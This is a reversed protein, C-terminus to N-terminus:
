SGPYERNTIHTFERILRKDQPTENCVLWDELVAQKEDDWQFLGKRLWDNIVKLPKFVKIDFQQILFDPLEHEVTSVMHNLAKACAAIKRDTYSLNFLRGTRTNVVESTELMNNIVKLITNVSPNDEITAGLPIIKSKYKIYWLYKTKFKPNKSLENCVMNITVCEFRSDIFMDPAIRILMLVSCTDCILIM